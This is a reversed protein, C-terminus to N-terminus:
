SSITRKTVDHALGLLGDEDTHHEAKADHSGDAERRGVKDEPM